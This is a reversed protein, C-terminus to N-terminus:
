KTSYKFFNLHCFMPKQNPRVFPFHFHRFPINLQIKSSCIISFKVTTNCKTIIKYENLISYDEVCKFDIESSVFTVLIKHFFLCGTMLTLSRLTYDTCLLQFCEKGSDLCQWYINASSPSLLCSNSM